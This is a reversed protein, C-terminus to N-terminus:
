CAVYRRIAGWDSAGLGLGIQEMVMRSAHFFLSEDRNEWGEEEQERKRHGRRLSKGRDSNQERSRRKNEKGGGEREERTPTVAENTVRSNTRKLYLRLRSASLKTGEKIMAALAVSAAGGPPPPPPLLDFLREETATM